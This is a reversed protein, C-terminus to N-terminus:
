PTEFSKNLVLTSLVRDIAEKEEETITGGVRFYMAVKAGKPELPIAVLLLYSPTKYVYDKVTSAVFYGKGKWIGKDLLRYTDLSSIGERQIKVLHNIVTEDDEGVPGLRLEEDVAVTVGAWKPLGFSVMGVDQDDIKWERPYMCSFLGAIDQYEVWDKPVRVTPTPSAPVPTPKPTPTDTPTPTSTPTATPTSTPTPTPMPTDTPTPTLRPVPALATLTAAVAQAVVTPNPTAEGKCATLLSCIIVVLILRYM